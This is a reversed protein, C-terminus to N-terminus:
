KYFARLAWNYSEELKTLALSKVRGAPITSELFLGAKYYVQTLAFMEDTSDVPDDSLMFQDKLSKKRDDTVPEIIDDLFYQGTEDAPFPNFELLKSM